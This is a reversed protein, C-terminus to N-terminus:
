PLSVISSLTTTQEGSLETGLLSARLADFATQEKM